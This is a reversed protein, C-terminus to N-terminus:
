FTSIRYSTGDYQIHILRGISKNKVIVEDLIGMSPIYKITKENIDIFAHYMPLQNGSASNENEKDTLDINKLLCSRVYQGKFIPTKKDFNFIDYEQDNVYMAGDNQIQHLLIETYPNIFEKPIKVEKLKKRLEDITEKQGKIANNQAEIKAQLTEILKQEKTKEAM